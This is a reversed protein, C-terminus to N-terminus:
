DEGTFSMNEAGEINGLSNKEDAAAGMREMEALRAWGAETETNPINGTDTVASFLKGMLWSMPDGGGHASALSDLDVSEFAHMKKSTNKM